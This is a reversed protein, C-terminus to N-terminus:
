RLQLTKHFRKRGIRALCQSRADLREGGLLAVDFMQFTIQRTPTTQPNLSIANHELFNPFVAMSNNIANIGVTAAHNIVKEFFNEAVLKQLVLFKFILGNRFVRGVYSAPRGISSTAHSSPRGASEIMLTADFSFGNPGDGSAM